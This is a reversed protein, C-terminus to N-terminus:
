VFKVLLCIGRPFPLGFKHLNGPIQDQKSKMGKQYFRPLSGPFILHAPKYFLKKRITSMGNISYVADFPFGTDNWSSLKRLLFLLHLQLRYSILSYVSQEKLICTPIDRLFQLHWKFVIGASASFNLQMTPRESWETPDVTGTVAAATPALNISFCKIKSLFSPPGSEDKERSGASNLVITSSIRLTSFLKPCLLKQVWPYSLVCGNMQGSMIQQLLYEHRHFIWQLFYENWEDM